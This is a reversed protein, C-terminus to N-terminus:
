KMMKNDLGTIFKEVLIYEFPYKVVNEKCIKDINNVKIM